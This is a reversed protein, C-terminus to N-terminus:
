EFEERSFVDSIKRQDINYHFLLVQGKRLGWTGGGELDTVRNQVMYQHPRFEVHAGLADGLAMGVMSGQIRDLIKEDIPGPPEQMENELEEPTKISTKGSDHYQLDLWPKDLCTYDVNISVIVKKMEFENNYESSGRSDIRVDSYCVVLIHQILM